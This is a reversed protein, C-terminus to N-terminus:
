SLVQGNRKQICIYIFKALARLVRKNDNKMIFVFSEMDLRRIVNYEADSVEERVVSMLQQRELTYLTCKLVFHFEDEIELMSCYICKRQDIPTKNPRDYRGTEIRLNHSSIRLRLLALSHNLNKVHILYDELRFEEKFTKYTRLKPFLSSDNISTMCTEMFKTYITEVVRNLDTFSLCQEDWPQQFDCEYLLNRIHFCWNEQGLQYMEFLSNYAKKVIHSENLTLIRYWYKLAQVKQRVILPFRGSEAYLAQTCSSMKVRFTSKIYRLHIREMNQIERGNFWVDAAYELIPCIQTDFMKFSLVPQLQGVTNRSYSNLAYIANWAKDSLHDQTKKLPDQTRSSFIVGLYKYETTVAIEQNNFTFNFNNTRKGFTVVNTKALSVILHWKKCFNYLGDILNQLGSPSDSILILDDAYLIYTMIDDDLAVGHSSELYDKLDYLFETFLKPSLMGGQLVGIDIKLGFM